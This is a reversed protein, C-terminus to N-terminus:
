HKCTTIDLTPGTRSKNITATTLMETAIPTYMPSAGLGNVLEFLYEHSAHWTSGRGSTSGPLIEVSGTGSSVGSSVGLGIQLGGISKGGRESGSGVTNGGVGSLRGGGSAKVESGVLERTRSM